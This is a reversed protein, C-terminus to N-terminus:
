LWKLITNSCHKFVSFFVHNCNVDKILVQFRIKLMMYIYPYKHLWVKLQENEATLNNVLGHDIVPVEQIVPAQEAAIKAAEREKFLLEKTEKFQLQMEELASQLKVNEQTKAEELDAQM